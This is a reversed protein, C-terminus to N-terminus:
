TEEDQVPGTDNCLCAGDKGPYAADHQVGSVGRWLDAAGRWVFCEL